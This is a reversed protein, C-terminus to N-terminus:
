GRQGSILRLWPGAHFASMLAYMTAMGTLPWASAASCLVLAPDSEAIASLAAMLAFVPSAAFALRDVLRSAESVRAPTPGTPEGCCAHSM